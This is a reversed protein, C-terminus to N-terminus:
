EHRTAKRWVKHRSEALTSSGPDGVENARTTAVNANTRACEECRPSGQPEKRHIHRVDVAPRAAAPGALQLESGSCATEEAGKSGRIPGYRDAVVITPERGLLGDSTQVDIAKICLAHKFM